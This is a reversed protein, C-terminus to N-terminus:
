GDSPAEEPAANVGLEQEIAAATREYQQAFSLLQERLREDAILEVAHRLHEAQRRYRSAAAEPDTHMTM